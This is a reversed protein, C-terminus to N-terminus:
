GLATLAGAAVVGAFTQFLAEHESMMGSYESGVAIGQLVLM